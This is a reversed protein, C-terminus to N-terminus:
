ATAKKPTLVLSSFVEHRVYCCKGIWCVPIYPFGFLVGGKSHLSFTVNTVINLNISMADPLIKDQLM